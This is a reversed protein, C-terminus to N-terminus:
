PTKKIITNLDEVISDYDPNEDDKLDLVSIKKKNKILGPLKMLKTSIPSSPRNFIVVANANFAAVEYANLKNGKLSPDIPIKM